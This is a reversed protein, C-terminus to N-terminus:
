TNGALAPIIRTGVGTRDEVRPIGRSLPSSGVTLCKDASELAYEGRSRPHDWGRDGGWALRLTNGALAPIIRRLSAGAAVGLPIGRSLPSSGGINDRRSRRAPYEGRSRPHDTKRKHCKKCLTTNGALAPIIRGGSAPPTGAALIGRSLPSSGYSMRGCRNRQSYEGRSRPHDGESGSPVRATSTNGALAPIIGGSIKICGEATHIGRSLPSSGYERASFDHRGGYEGRSRPHDAKPVTRGPYERTNGALAPIIGKQYPAVRWRRRIGRSLPSSGRGVVSVSPGPAYEGRSRPHDMQVLPRWPARLTNGALAPIIRLGSAVASAAQRIGRSLPSSGNM